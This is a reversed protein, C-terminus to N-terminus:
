VVAVQYADEYIIEGPDTTWSTKPEVDYKKLLDILPDLRRVLAQVEPTDKFWTIAKQPNGEEYFPPTPLNDIYWSDIDEFLKTEAPTLRDIRKLHHCAGFVGVPKGTQGTFKIHVRFYKM